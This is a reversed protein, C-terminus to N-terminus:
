KAEVRPKFWALYEMHGQCLTQYPCLSAYRKSVINCGESHCPFTDGVREIAQALSNLGIRWQEVQERKYPVVQDRYVEHPEDKFALEIRIGKADTLVAYLQAQLSYRYKDLQATLSVAHKTAKCEHIIGDASLGDLRACFTDNELWMESTDPTRVGDDASFRLNYDLMLNTLANDLRKFERGDLWGSAETAWLAHSQEANVHFEVGAYFRHVFTAWVQGFIRDHDFRTMSLDLPIIGRTGPHEPHVYKHRWWYYAPSKLFDAIASYSLKSM